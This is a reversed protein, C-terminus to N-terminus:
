EEVGCLCWLVCLLPLMGGAAYMRDVVLLSSLSWCGKLLTKEVCKKADLLCISVDRTLNVFGTTVRTAMLQQQYSDQSLWVVTFCFFFLLLLPWLFEKWRNPCALITERALLQVKVSKNLLVLLVFLLFLLFLLLLAWEPINDCWCRTTAKQLSIKLKILPKLTPCVTPRHHALPFLRWRHMELCAPPGNKERQSLFSALVFSVFSFFRSSCVSLQWSSSFNWYQKERCMHEPSEVPACDESLWVGM